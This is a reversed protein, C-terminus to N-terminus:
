NISPSKTHQKRAKETLILRFVTESGKIEGRYLFIETRLCMKDVFGSFIYALSGRLPCPSSQKRLQSIGFFIYHKALYLYILRAVDEHVKYCDAARELM